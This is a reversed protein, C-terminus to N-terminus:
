INALEEFTVIHHGIATQQHLKMFNKKKVAHMQMM